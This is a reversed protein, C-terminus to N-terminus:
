INPSQLNPVYWLYIKSSDSKPQSNFVGNANANQKIIAILVWWPKDSSIQLNTTLAGYYRDQQGAAQFMTDQLNKNIVKYQIAM